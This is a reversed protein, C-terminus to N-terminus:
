SERCRSATATHGLSPTATRLGIRGRPICRAFSCPTHASNHFAHLKTIPASADAM